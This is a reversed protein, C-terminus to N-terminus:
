NAPLLYNPDQYELLIQRTQETWGSYGSQIKAPFIKTGADTNLYGITTYEVNGPPVIGPDAFNAIINYFAGLQGDSVGTLSISFSLFTPDPIFLAVKAVAVSINLGLLNPQPNFADLNNISVSNTYTAIGTFYLSYFHAGSCTGDNSTYGDWSFAWTDGIITIKMIQDINYGTIWCGVYTGNKIYANANFASLQAHTIGSLQLPSLVSVQQPTLAAILATPIAAIQSTSLAGMQTSQLGSIMGTTLSAVQPLSFVGV